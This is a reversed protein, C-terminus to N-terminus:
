ASSSKNRKGIHRILYPFGSAMASAATGLMGVMKCVHVLRAGVAGQQFQGSGGAPFGIWFRYSHFGEVIGHFVLAAAKQRETDPLEKVKHDCGSGFVVWGLEDRGPSHHRVVYAVGALRQM